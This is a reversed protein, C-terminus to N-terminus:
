RVNFWTLCNVFWDCSLWGDCHSYSYKCKTSLNHVNYRNFLRSSPYKFANSALVIHVAPSLLFDHMVASGWYLSSYIRGACGKTNYLVHFSSLLDISWINQLMICFWIEGGCYFCYISFGLYVNWTLQYIHNKVFKVANVHNFLPNNCKPLDISMNTM